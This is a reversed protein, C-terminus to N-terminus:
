CSYYKAVRGSDAKGGLINKLEPLSHYIREFICTTELFPAYETVSPDIRPIDSVCELCYLNKLLFGQGKNNLQLFSFLSINRSLPAYQQLFFPPTYERLSPYNRLTDCTTTSLPTYEPLFPYIRPADSLTEGCLNM